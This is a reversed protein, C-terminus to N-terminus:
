CFGMYGKSMKCPCIEGYNIKRPHKSNEKIEKHFAEPNKKEIRGIVLNMVLSVYRIRSTIRLYHYRGKVIQAKTRVGLFTKSATLFDRLVHKIPDLVM